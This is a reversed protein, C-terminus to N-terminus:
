SRYNRCKRFLVFYSHTIFGAFMLTLRRLQCFPSSVALDTSNQSGDLEAPVASNQSFRRTRRSGDLEALVTSNQSGDLEALVTSNQLFRRTRRVTSCSGNLRTVVSFLTTPHAAFDYLLISGVYFHCKKHFCNTLYM